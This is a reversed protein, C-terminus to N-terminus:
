TDLCDKIKKLFDHMWEQWVVAGHPLTAGRYMRSSLLHNRIYILEQQTLYPRNM